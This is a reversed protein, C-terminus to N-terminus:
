LRTSNRRDRSRDLLNLLLRTVVRVAGQLMDFLLNIGRSLFRTLLGRLQRGARGPFLTTLFYLILLPFLWPVFTEFAWVRSDRYRTIGLLDGVFNGIGQGAGHLLPPGAVWALWLLAGAKFLLGIWSLPLSCAAQRLSTSGCQGCFRADPPSLHPHRPHDCLRGGFSGGCSTCIAGDSSLRRCRLCYRM